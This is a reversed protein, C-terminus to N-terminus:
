QGELRRVPESGAGGVGGWHSYTCLYTNICLIVPHLLPDPQTSLMKLLKVSRIQVSESGVFCFGLLPPLRLCIFVQQQTGKNTFKKRFASM